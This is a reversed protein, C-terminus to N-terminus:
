TAEYHESGPSGPFIEFKIVKYGTKGDNTHLPITDQGGDALLGKYSKIM